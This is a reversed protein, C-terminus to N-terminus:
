PFVHRNEEEADQEVYGRPKSMFLVYVSCVSCWHNLGRMELCVQTM